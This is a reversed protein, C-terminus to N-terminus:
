YKEEQGLPYNDVSIRMGKLMKRDEETLGRLWKDIPSLGRTCKPGHYGNVGYCEKCFVRSDVYAKSEETEGM